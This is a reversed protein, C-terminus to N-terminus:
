SVAILGRWQQVALPRDRAVEPHRVYEVQRCCLDLRYPHAGCLLSLLVPGRAIPSSVSRLTQRAHAPFDGSLRTGDGGRVLVSFGVYAHGPLAVSRRPFHFRLITFFVKCM